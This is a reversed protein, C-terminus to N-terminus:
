PLVLGLYGSGREVIGRMCVFELVSTLPERGACVHLRDAWSDSHDVCGHGLHARSKNYRSKSPATSRRDIIPADWYAILSPVNVQSWSGWSLRQQPKYPRSLGKVVHRTTLCPKSKGWCQSLRM